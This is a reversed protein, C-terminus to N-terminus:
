IIKIIKKALSLDRLEKDLGLFINREVTDNYLYPSQAVFSVKINKQRYILALQKLLYSKGVGTAGVLASMKNDTIIFDRKKDWFLVQIHDKESQSQIFNELENPTDM